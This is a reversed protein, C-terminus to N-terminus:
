WNSQWLNASKQCISRSVFGSPSESPRVYSCRNKQGERCLFGRRPLFASVCVVFVCNIDHLKVHKKYKRLTDFVKHCVKCPLYLHRMKIPNYLFMRTIDNVELLNPILILCNYFCISEGIWKCSKLKIRLLTLDFFISIRHYRNFHLQLENDNRFRKQCAGENPSRRWLIPVTWM